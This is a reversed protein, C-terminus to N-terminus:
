LWIAHSVIYIHMELSTHVAKVKKEAEKAKKRKPAQKEKIKQEPAMNNEELTMTPGYYWCKKMKHGVRGCMNCKGKESKGNEISTLAPKSKKQASIVNYIIKAREMQTMQSSYGNM